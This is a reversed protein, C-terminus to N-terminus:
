REEDSLSLRSVFDSPFAQSNEWAMYYWGSYYLVYVGGWAQVGLDSDEFFWLVHVRCAKCTSEKAARHFSFIM